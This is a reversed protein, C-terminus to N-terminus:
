GRDIFGNFTYKYKVIKGEAEGIILIHDSKTTFEIIKDVLTYKEIAQM